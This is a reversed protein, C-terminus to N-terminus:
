FCSKGNLMVLNHLTFELAADIRYLTTVVDPWHPEVSTNKIVEQLMGTLDNLGPTQLSNYSFFTYM